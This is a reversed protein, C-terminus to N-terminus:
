FNMEPNVYEFHFGKHTKIHGNLVKNIGTVDFGMAHACMEQSEYEIDTEVVRIPKRNNGGRRVM